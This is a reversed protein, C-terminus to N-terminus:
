ITINNPYKKFHMLQFNLIWRYVKKKAHAITKNFNVFQFNDFKRQPLEDDFEEMKDFPGDGVGIGIISLPYNSAYVIANRTEDMNVVEGDTIIILIHYSGTSKVIEIAHNIIPAFSTPGSLKIHPTIKEYCSLVDNFTHCHTNRPLTQNAETKIDFIKVGNTWIQNAETKINFIKVGNTWTQNAETKINFIKVGKTHIDGFGFSPIMKDEDFDELTRGIIKIVTQYPNDISRNITHLSKGDFSVAGNQSNSGTYDIAFILNVGEVGQRRLERQV